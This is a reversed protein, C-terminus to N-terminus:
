GNHHWLSPGNHHWVSQDENAQNIEIHLDYVQIDCLILGYYPIFVSLCLHTESVQKYQEVKSYHPHCIIACFRPLSGTLEAGLLSEPDILLNIQYTCQGPKRHDQRISWPHLLESLPALHWGMLPKFTLILIKVDIWQRVMLSQNKDMVPTKIHYYIPPPPQLDQYNRPWFSVHLHDASLTTNKNIKNTQQDLKLWIEQDHHDTMCSVNQVWWLKNLLCHQLESFYCM